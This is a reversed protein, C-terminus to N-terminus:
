KAWLARLINQVEPLNMLEITSFITIKNQKKLRADNSWIPTKLKMALAFFDVDNPDPSIKLAKKLFPAYDELPIFTVAIALDFKIQDFEEKTLNNKKIIEEQHKNIEELAFEPAFLELDQSMLLKRTISYQWFYSFLINTDVTLKM